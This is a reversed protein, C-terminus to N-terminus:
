EQFKYGVGRVTKICAGVAGLKKRLGAIQVDVARETVPYDPGRVADVIQYRTYVWGPRLALLHLVRFTRNAVWRWGLLHGVWILLLGITIFAVYAFHLIVVADALIRYVLM